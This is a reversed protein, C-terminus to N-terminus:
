SANVDNWTDDIGADEPLLDFALDLEQIDWVKRSDIRKPKPMRGMAVLEDFKTSGVGVYHAAEIRSLGRRPVPRSATSAGHRITM